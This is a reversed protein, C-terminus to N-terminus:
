SPRLIDGQVREFIKRRELSTCFAAILASAEISGIPLVKSQLWLMTRCQRSKSCIKEILSGELLVLEYDYAHLIQPQVIRTLRLSLKTSKGYRFLLNVAQTVSYSHKLAQFLSPILLPLTCAKRAM